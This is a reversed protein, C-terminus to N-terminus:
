KCEQVMLLNKPAYFIFKIRGSPQTSDNKQNFQLQDTPISLLIRNQHIIKPRIIENMPIILPINKQHTLFYVLIKSWYTVIPNPIPVILQKPRVEIIKESYNVCDMQPINWVRFLDGMVSSVLEPIYIHGPFVAQMIRVLELSNPIPCQEPANWKKLKNLYSYSPTLLEIMKQITCDFSAPFMNHKKMFAIIILNSYLFYGLANDVSSTINNRLLANLFRTHCTQLIKKAKPYKQAVKQVIEQSMVSLLRELTLNGWIINGTIGDMTMWVHRSSIPSKPLSQFITAPILICLRRPFVSIIKFRKYTEDIPRSTRIQFDSTVFLHSTKFNLIQKPLEAFIYKEKHKFVPNISQISDQASKGPTPDILRPIIHDVLHPPRDQLAIKVLYQLSASDSNAIKFNEMPISRYRLFSHLFPYYIQIRCWKDFAKIFEQTQNTELFFAICIRYINVIPIILDSSILFHQLKPPEPQHALTFRFKMPSRLSDQTALLNHVIRKIQDNFNQNVQPLGQIIRHYFYRLLYNWREAPTKQWDLIRQPQYHIPKKKEKEPTHDSSPRNLSSPNVSQGLPPSPLVSPIARPSPHLSEVKIQAYIHELRSDQCAFEVPSASDLIVPYLPCATNWKQINSILQKCKQRIIKTKVPVRTLGLMWLLSPKPSKPSKSFRHNIYAFIAIRVLNRQGKMNGFVKRKHLHFLKDLFISLAPSSEHFPKNYGTLYLAEYEITLPTFINYFFHRYKRIHSPFLYWSNPNKASFEQPRPSSLLQTVPHHAYMNEFFHQDQASSPLSDLFPKTQEPEVIGCYRCAFFGDSNLIYAHKEAVPCLTDEEPDCPPYLAIM